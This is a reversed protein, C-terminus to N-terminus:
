RSYAWRAIPNSGSGGAAEPQSRHADDDEAGARATANGLPVARATNALHRTRAIRSNQRSRLGGHGDRDITFIPTQDASRGIQALPHELGRRECWAGDPVTRNAADNQEIGLHVINGPQQRKAFPLRKVKKRRRFNKVHQGFIRNERGEIALQNSTHREGGTLGYM